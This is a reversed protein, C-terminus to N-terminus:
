WGSGIASRRVEVVPGRGFAGEMANSPATVLRISATLLLAETTDELPDDVIEDNVECDCVPLLLVVEFERIQHVLWSSEVLYLGM